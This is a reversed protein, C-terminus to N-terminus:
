PFRRFNVNSKGMLDVKELAVHMIENFNFVYGVKQQRM